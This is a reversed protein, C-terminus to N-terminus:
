AISLCVSKFNTKQRKHLGNLTNILLRLATIHLDFLHGGLGVIMRPIHILYHQKPLISEDPFIRRFEKLHEEIYRRLHYITSKSIVPAYIIQLIKILDILFMFVVNTTDIEILSTM